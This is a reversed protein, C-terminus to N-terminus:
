KTAIGRAKSGPWFDLAIQYKFKIIANGRERARAGGADAMERCVVGSATENERGHQNKGSRAKQSGGGGRGGAM